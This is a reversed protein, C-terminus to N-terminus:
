LRGVKSCKVKAHIVACQMHGDRDLYCRDGWMEQCERPVMLVVGKPTAPKKAACGLLSTLLLVAVVKV